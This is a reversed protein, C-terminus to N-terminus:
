GAMRDDACLCKHELRCQDFFAQDDAFTQHGTRDVEWVESGASQDIRMQDGTSQSRIRLSPAAFSAARTLNALKEGPDVGGGCGERNDGTIQITARMRGGIVILLNKGATEDIEEGFGNAFVRKCPIRRVWQDIAPVNGQGPLSDIVDEQVPIGHVVTTRTNCADDEIFAPDIGTGSPLHRNRIVVSKQRGDFGGPLGSALLAAMLRRPSDVEVPGGQDAGFNDDYTYARGNRM